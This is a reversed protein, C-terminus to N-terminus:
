LEHLFGIRYAKMEQNFQAAGPLLKELHAWYYKSHNKEKVHALEHHIVYDILHDPLLYVYCSLNINNDSSCSGWRTKARNIKVQQIAIQHQKAARHVHSPLNRLAIERLFNELQKEIWHQIDPSSIDTDPAVTLNMERTVYHMQSGIRNAREITLRIDKFQYTKGIEFLSKPKVKTQLEARKSIIWDRKETVFKRADKIAAYKPLTVQVAQGPRLKIKVYKARAHRKYEVEGIGEIQENM